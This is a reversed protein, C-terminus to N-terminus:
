SYHPCSLLKSKNIELEKGMLVQNLRDIQKYANSLSEDAAKHEKMMSQYKM